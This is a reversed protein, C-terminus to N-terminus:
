IWRRVRRKYDLYTDGFRHELYTEEPGIAAYQLAWVVAPVLMFIWWNGLVIAVGICVMVMQLYMPNRTVSFPGSTQLSPTPKWPNENQGSRRFLLVSWVGLFLFAGVVIFGGVVHRLQGSVPSLFPLPWMRNLVVGLVIAILPIGPPFFKVKAAEHNKQDVIKEGCTAKCALWNILPKEPFGSELPAVSFYRIDAQAELSGDNQCEHKM